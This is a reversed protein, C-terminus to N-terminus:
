WVNLEDPSDLILFPLRRRHPLDCIGWPIEVIRPTNGTGTAM